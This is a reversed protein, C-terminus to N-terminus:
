LLCPTDTVVTILSNYYVHLSQLLMYDITIFMYHSCYCTIYQLLCTTVAIVHLRNHYVHLSQLLMYDITIFM